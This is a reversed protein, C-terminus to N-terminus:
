KAIWWNIAQARLEIDVGRPSHFLSQLSGLFEILRGIGSQGRLHVLGIGHDHPIDEM